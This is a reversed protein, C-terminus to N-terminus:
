PQLVEPQVRGVVAEIRTVSTLPHEPRSSLLCGYTPWTIRISFPGEAPSACSAAGNVSAIRSKTQPDSSRWSKLERFHDPTLTEDHRPCGDECGCICWWRYCWLGKEGSLIPRRGSHLTTTTTMAPTPCAASAKTCRTALAMCPKRMLTQRRMTTRHIRTPQKVREQSRAKGRSRRPRPGGSRLRPPPM